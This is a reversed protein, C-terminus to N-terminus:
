LRVSTARVFQCGDDDDFSSQRIHNVPGGGQALEAGPDPCTAEFEPQRLLVQSVAASQMVAEDTVDLM